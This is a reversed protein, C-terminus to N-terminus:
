LFGFVEQGIDLELQLQFCFSLSPRRVRHQECRSFRAAVDPYSSGALM